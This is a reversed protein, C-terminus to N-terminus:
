SINSLVNQNQLVLNCAYLSAVGVKPYLVLVFVMPLDGIQHCTLMAQICSSLGVIQVAHVHSLSKSLCHFPFYFSMTESIVVGPYCITALQHWIGAVLENMRTCTVSTVELFCCLFSHIISSSFSWTLRILSQTPLLYINTWAWTFWKNSRSLHGSSLAENNQNTNPCYDFCLFDIVLM